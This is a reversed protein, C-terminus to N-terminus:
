ITVYPMAVYDYLRHIAATNSLRLNIGKHSHMYMIVKMGTSSVLAQYVHSLPLIVQVYPVYM